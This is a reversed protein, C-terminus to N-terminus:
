REVALVCCLLSKGWRRAINWVVTADDTEYFLDRAGRQGIYDPNQQVKGLIDEEREKNGTHLLYSLDAHEWMFAQLAREEETREVPAASELGAFM